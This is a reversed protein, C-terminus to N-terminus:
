ERGPLAAPVPGSPGVTDRVRQHLSDMAAVALGDAGSRAELTVFFANLQRQLSPWFWEWSRPAQCTPLPVADFVCQAVAPPYLDPFPAEGVVDFLPAVELGKGLKLGACWALLYYQQTHCPEPTGHAHAPAPRLVRPDETHGRTLIQMGDKFLQLAALSRGSPSMRYFALVEAVAGFNAGARAVRQWLDWDPSTKLSTDFMGVEEVLGRRVVCAHVPFVARRALAPFLDGTPPRYADVIQSGDAAVRAYACHVADLASDAALCATMTELHTPSIWDDADLCLLWDYRAHRIGSNRAAAEGGNPQDVVQIRADREAFSKALAATLDTSGDNVVVAQWAQHSQEVVSRLADALTPAANYAPIIISVNM